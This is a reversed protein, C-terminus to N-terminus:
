AIYESLMKENKYHAVQKNQFQLDILPFIPFLENTKLKWCDQLQVFELFLDFFLAVISMSYTNLTLRHVYNLVQFTLGEITFDNMEAM